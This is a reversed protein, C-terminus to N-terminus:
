FLCMYIYLSILEVSGVCWCLYLYVSSHLILEVCAVGSPCASNGRPYWEMCGPGVQRLGRSWLSWLQRARAGRAGRARLLNSVLM